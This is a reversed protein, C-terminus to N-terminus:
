EGIKENVFQDVAELQTRGSNELHACEQRMEKVFDTDKIEKLNTLVNLIGGRLGTFAIQAGVAVDTISSPNANQAVVGAVELAELSLRATRLPVEVANKLGEQMAVEREKEEQQTSKPMRRAEMFANFADADADVGNLLSLKIRQCKEAAENLVQDVKTSGRKNATLNAVM